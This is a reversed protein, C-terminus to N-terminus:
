QGLGGYVSLNDHFDGISAVVKRTQLTLEKTPSLILIQSEQMTFDVSEIAAIAFTGTKGTGSQAQAIVDSGSIIPVIAKQQIISPKEFGFGFIGRLTKEKLNMHDFEEYAEVQQGTSSAQTLESTKSSYVAHGNATTVDLVENEPISDLDSM